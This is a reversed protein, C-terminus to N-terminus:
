YTVKFVVGNNTSGGSGTAGYFTNKKGRLLGAPGGGDNPSGSFSHLIIETGSPDIKYVVGYGNYGGGNPTTGFINGLKDLVVGTGLPYDGDIGDDAFNHLILEVGTSTLEYVTGVGNTGGWGTTGYINHAKDLVVGAYPGNGDKGDAAFSHLTTEVGNSSLKYVTGQGSASCQSTTGYLTKKPGFIVGGYPYCGDSSGGAFSHLVTESGGPAIKYVTGNGSAGGYVTTGYLNGAKDLIVGAYPLAGDTGGTFTHLPTEIGAPTLQYVVGYGAGGNVTTGYMNGAKDLVLGGYIPYAGDAGCTFSYLVTEVGAPTLKFVTGCNSTGGGGTTGYFNGSADAVLPALSSAGDPTGQFSYIVSETQASAAQTMAFLMGAVSAALMVPTVNLMQRLASKWKPQSVRLVCQTRKVESSM